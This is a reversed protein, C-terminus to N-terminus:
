GVDTLLLVPLANFKLIVDKTSDRMDNVVWKWISITSLNGEKKKYAAVALSSIQEILPYKNQEEIAMIIIFM